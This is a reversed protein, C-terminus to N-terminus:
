ASNVMHVKSAMFYLQVERCVFFDTNLQTGYVCVAHKRVGYIPFNKGNFSKGNFVKAM